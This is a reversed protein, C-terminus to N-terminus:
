KKGKSLIDERSLLYQWYPSFLERFSTKCDLMSGKVSLIGNKLPDAQIIDFLRKLLSFDGKMGLIFAYYIDKEIKDNYSQSTDLLPLTEIFLEYARICDKRIEDPLEMPPDQHLISPLQQFLTTYPNLLEPTINNDSEKAYQHLCTVEIVTSINTSIKRIYGRSELEDLFSSVTKRHWKWKNSLELISAELQGISLHVRIGRKIIETPEKVANDLLYIFAELRNNTQHSNNLYKLFEIDIRIQQNNRNQITM